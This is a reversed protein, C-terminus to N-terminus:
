WRLRAKKKKKKTNRPQRTFLQCGIAVQQICKQPGINTLIKSRHAQICASQKPQEAPM